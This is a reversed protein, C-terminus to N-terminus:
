GQGREEPLSQSQMYEECVPIVQDLRSVVALACAREKEPVELLDPIVIVPIGAAVAARIGQPSDELVLSEDPATKMMRCTHLFVDPEPKGNELDQSSFVGTFYPRLGTQELHREISEVSSGSAVAMAIGQKSLWSLLKTLGQKVPLGEKKTITGMTKGVARYFREAEFDQGFNERYISCIERSDHGILALFQEKRASLGWQRATELFARGMLRETDFMLGDMDFIVLRLM